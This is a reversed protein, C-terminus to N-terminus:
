PLMKIKLDKFQITMNFGAHMQMGIVGDKRADPGNDTLDTM